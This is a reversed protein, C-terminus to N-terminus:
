QGLLSETLKSLQKDFAKSYKKATSMWNTNGNIIASRFVEWTQNSFSDCFVRGFDFSVISRILGFMEACEPDQAYKHKFADEFLAPSVTRYGESGMAELIAASMAANKADLPVAYLTYPFSTITVYEKQEEDYKPFPVIGYTFEADRLQEAFVFEQSIFLARGEKFAGSVAAALETTGYALMCGDTQVLSVVKEVVSQSREGSFSESLVPIDNEDKEMYHLGCSFYYPDVYIGYTVYGLRDEFGKKGDGNLDSYVDESMEKMKDVTWTGNKVLTYPSELNNDTLMEQDFYIGYLYYIMSTSLDGSCFYLKGGCTAEDMLSSPWWPKSFDLYPLENLPQCMGKSALSAGGMSYGATIDYDGSNARISASVTAVWKSFAANDGPELHYALTVGLREEVARNRAFIADNVIEGTQEESFYEYREVHSNNSWGYITVAAGDFRLDPPLDDPEYQPEPETEPPQETTVADPASQTQVAPTTDGGSEGSAGSGCGALPALLVFALLLSVTRVTRKTTM